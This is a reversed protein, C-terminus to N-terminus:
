MLLTLIVIFSSIKFFSTAQNSNSFNKNSTVTKDGTTSTSFISCKAISFGFDEAHLIKSSAKLGKYFYKKFIKEIFIEEQKVLCQPLPQNFCKGFTRAILSCLTEQISDKQLSMSKLQKFYNEEKDELCKKLVNDVEKLDEKSCNRDTFVADLGLILKRGVSEIFAKDPVNPCSSFFTEIKELVQDVDNDEKISLLTAAVKEIKAITENATREIDDKKFCEKINEFVCERAKQFPLCFDIVSEKRQTQHESFCNWLNELSSTVSAHDCKETFFADVSCQSSFLLSALLYIRMKTVVKQQQLDQSLSDGM